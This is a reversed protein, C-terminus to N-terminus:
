PSKEQLEQPNRRLRNLLDIWENGISDISYRQLVDRRARIGMAARAKANRLALLAKSWDDVSDAIIGNVGSVIVKSYAPLEGTVVPMGWAMFMTLKNNSKARARDTGSTPIVAIDGTFVERQVTELSWPVTADPHNSITKLEFRRDALDWMAQRVIELTEWNDQHGVWVLQLKDKQIHTKSTDIDNEIADEIVISTVGYKDNYYAKLYESSVIVQDVSTIMPTDILDSLLLITKIGFNRSIKSFLMAKDDRVKQFILTNYRSVLIRIKEWNSITLRPEMFPHSQLINSKMRNALLFNHINIGHIRSSGTNVDGYLFWGVKLRNRSAYQGVSKRM